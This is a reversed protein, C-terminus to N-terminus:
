ESLRHQWYGPDRKLPAVASIWIREPEELYLLAYPFSPLLRRRVPPDVQRFRRPHASVDALAAEVEDYFRAGLEPSIGAYYRLAETFEADAERHFRCLKV